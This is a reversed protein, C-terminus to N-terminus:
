ISNFASIIRDSCDNSKLCYLEKNKIIKTDIHGSISRLVNTEFEEYSTVRLIENISQKNNLFSFNNNKPDLFYCVKGLGILEYGLTSSWTFLSRAKYGLCYSDSIHDYSDVIYKVNKIDSLIKLENIDNFNKKHKIAITLNPFKIAFKRIFYFHEYYDNYYSNYGSHFQALHDSEFFILDYCPFKNKDPHFYFDREMWFSGIPIIKKIKGGLNDVMQASNLGLSFLIDAHIYM